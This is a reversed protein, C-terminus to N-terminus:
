LPTNSEILGISIYSSEDCVITAPDLSLYPVQGANLTEDEVISTVLACVDPGELRYSANQTTTDIYSVLPIHGTMQLSRYTSIFEGAQGPYDTISYNASLWEIASGDANFRFSITQQRRRPIAIYGGSSYDLTDTFSNSLATVRGQGSYNGDVWYTYDPSGDSLEFVGQVTGLTVFVKNVRSLDHTFNPPGAPTPCTSFDFAGEAKVAASGMLIPACIDGMILGFAGLGLTEENEAEETELFEIIAALPDVPSPEV